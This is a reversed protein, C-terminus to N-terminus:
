SCPKRVQPRVREFVAQDDDALLVRDILRGVMPMEPEKMGCTTFASLDIPL